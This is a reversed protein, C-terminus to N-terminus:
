SVRSPGLLVVERLFQLTVKPIWTMSSSFVDLFVCWFGPEPRKGDERWDNCFVVHREAETPLEFDAAMQRGLVEDM